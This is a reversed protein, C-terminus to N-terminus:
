NIILNDEPLMIPPNTRQKVLGMLLSLLGVRGVFMATCLVVKAAAPLAETIGFSSGVSFLASMTEFLVSRVSFDQALALMVGAYIVYSILSLVIIAQARSLSASSIRRNYATVYKHGGVVCRLHLLAAAFTNVKIGGGTSQSGAGVWMMFMVMLLTVPLFGSPSVSVFGSSRPTTSNFLGQVLKEWPSMGALVGSWEFLLFLVFTIVFLIATTKVAVRTNMNYLHPRRPPKPRHRLRAAIRGIHEDVADKANVLIPFGIGGAIVLVSVVVYVMQNGKMLAMNAMGDPLNSFGANCFASLSHFGSTAWLEVSTYEPLLGQLSFFVAVAGLAEIMLTFVLTYGLTPLLSNITRSYFMDRVILQSYISANGSFFLAFSSTITMVGLAGVQMMLAIISLGLPTFTASVDVTTLGCICVASTSVFLADVPDIGSVTCKPLMLLVTGLAIVFLFSVSLILSPNTRRGLSRILSWCIYVGSYVAISLAFVRHFWPIDHFLDIAFVALILGDAIWKAAKVQRYTDRFRLLLNFLINVVIVIMCGHLCPGVNRYSITEHDFGAYLTLMVLALVSCLLTMWELIRSIMRLTDAHHRTFRAYPRTIGALFSM